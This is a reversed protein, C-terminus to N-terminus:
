TSQGCPCSLTPAEQLSRILYGRATDTPPITRGRLTAQLEGAGMEALSSYKKRPCGFRKRPRERQLVIVIMLVVGLQGIVWPM